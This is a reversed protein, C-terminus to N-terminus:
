EHPHDRSAASVRRWFHDGWRLNPGDKAGWKGRGTGGEHIAVGGGGGGERRRGRKKERGRRQTGEVKRARAGGKHKETVGLTTGFRSAMVTTTANELQKSTAAISISIPVGNSKLPSSPVTHKM